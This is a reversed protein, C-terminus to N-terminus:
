CMPGFAPLVPERRPRRRGYAVELEPQAGRAMAQRHAEIADEEFRLLGHITQRSRLHATLDDPKSKVVAILMDTDLLALWRVTRESLGQMLEGPVPQERLMLDATAQIRQLLEHQGPSLDIRAAADEYAEVVETPDPPQYGPLCSIIFRGLSECWVLILATLAALARAIAALIKM